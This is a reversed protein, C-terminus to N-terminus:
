GHGGGPVSVRVRAQGRWEGVTARARARARSRVAGEGKLLEIRDLVEGVVRKM